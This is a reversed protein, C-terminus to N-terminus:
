EQENLDSDSPEPCPNDENLEDLEPQEYGSLCRWSEGDDDSARIIGKGDACENATRISRHDHGCDPQMVRYITM